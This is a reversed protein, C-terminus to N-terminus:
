ATFIGDDGDVSPNMIELLDNLPRRYLSVRYREATYHFAEEAAADVELEELFAPVGRTIYNGIGEVLFLYAYGVLCFVLLTSLGRAVRYVEM